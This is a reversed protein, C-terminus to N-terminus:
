PPCPGIIPHATIIGEGLPETIVRICVGNRYGFVEQRAPNGANTKLSGPPGTVNRPTLSPDTAVDSVAHMIEDDSWGQPFPTKDPSAGPWRHGGGTADRDLIHTRRAPSALDVLDDATNTAVVLALPTTSTRRGDVSPSASGARAWFLPAAVFSVAEFSPAEIRAIAPGDSTYTAAGVTTTGAQSLVLALTSVLLRWVSTM